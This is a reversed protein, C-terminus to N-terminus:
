EYIPKSSEKRYKTGKGSVDFASGSGAMEKVNQLHNAGQDKAAARELM